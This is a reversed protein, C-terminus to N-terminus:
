FLYGGYNEGWSPETWIRAPKKAPFTIFEQLDLELLRSTDDKLTVDDDLIPTVIVDDLDIEDRTDELNEFFMTPTYNFRTSTM